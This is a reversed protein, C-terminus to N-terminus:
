PITLGTKIFENIVSKPLSVIRVLFGIWWVMVKYAKQCIKQINEKYESITFWHSQEKQLIKILDIGFDGHIQRGQLQKWLM